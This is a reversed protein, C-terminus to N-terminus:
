NAALVAVNKSTDLKNLETWLWTSTAGTELGVRAVDPAHAAIFQAIADPDSTVMAERIIKGAQNVVCVATQKLSVDLGVYHQM